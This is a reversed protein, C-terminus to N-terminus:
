SAGPKRVPPNNKKMAKTKAKNVKTGHARGEHATAALPALAVALCMMFAAVKTLAMSRRGNGSSNPLSAMGPAEMSQVSRDSRM